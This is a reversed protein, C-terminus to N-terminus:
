LGGGTQTSPPTAEADETGRVDEIDQVDVGEGETDPASPVAGGTMTADPLAGGTMAGGTMAGGTMTGGTMDSPAAGDPAADGAALAEEPSVESPAGFVYAARLRELDANDVVGDGTIDAPLNVGTEGFSAGLDALDYFDVSGDQNIDEAAFAVLARLAVEDAPSPEAAAGAPIAPNMVSRTSPAPSLGLLLGVEHLLAREDAATPNILVSTEPDPTRQVTLSLTDPGFLTGDGYRILTDAEPTQNFTVEGGEVESWRTFAAEVREGLTDAGGDANLRYDVAVAVGAILTMVLVLGARRVFRGASRKTSRKM